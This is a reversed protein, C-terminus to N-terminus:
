TPPAELYRPTVYLRARLDDIGADVAPNRSAKAVFRTVRDEPGAPPVLVYDGEYPARGWTAGASDQRRARDSGIELIRNAYISMDVTPVWAELNDFARTEAVAGNKEDFFGVKGKKLAGAANLAADIGSKLMEGNAGIRWSGDELCMLELTSWPLKVGYAASAIPTMDHDFGTGGTLYTITGAVRKMLSIYWQNAGKYIGANYFMLRLWNNTDVYRIFPGMKALPEFESKPNSTTVDLKVFINTFESAGLIEYRPTNAADSLATRQAYHETANITFDDADGAGAYVGGIGASKGALAGSTQEFPDFLSLATPSPVNTSALAEGSGEDIPQLFLWDIYIKDGTVTSKANLRGEWRPTTGAPPEDLTVIGLDVISFVGEGEDPSFTVEENQNTNIFDGEAWSLFVSVKGTNTEPRYLRAFVRYSGVHTMHNGAGAAQTSCVSQYANVLSGLLITNKGAGSAGSLEALEAGGIPTRGEAQYFLAADASSSYRQQQQGWWAALQNQGQLDELQLRGLAPMEGPVGEALFSLVPLEKEDFNGGIQIEPGRGGPLAEFGLTLEARRMGIGLDQPADALEAVRLDYTVPSFGPAIRRYTGRKTRKIRDLRQTVDRCIRSFRTGDPAPRTSSTAHRAGSWDCGPTDGDFYSTAAAAAELQSADVYFETVEGSELLNGQNYQGIMVHATVAGAPATATFALRQEGTATARAVSGSSDEIVGGAENRWRIYLQPGKGSKPLTVVKVWASFTYKTGAVVPHGATAGSNKSWVRATQEKGTATYKVYISYDGAKAWATSRAFSNQTATGDASWDTFGLELSPNSLINTAAPDSPEFVRVRATITRNGYKSAVVPDGETDIGGSRQVEPKPPPYEHSLLYIGWSPDLGVLDLPQLTPDETVPDLTIREAVSM